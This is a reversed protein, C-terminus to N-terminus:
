EQKSLACHNANTEAILGITQWGCSYRIAVKTSQLEKLQKVGQRM